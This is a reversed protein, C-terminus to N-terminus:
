DEEEYVNVLTVGDSLYVFIYVTGNITQKVYIYSDFTETPQTFDNKLNTGPIFLSSSLILVLFLILVNKM